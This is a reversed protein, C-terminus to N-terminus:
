GDQQKEEGMATRDKDDANSGTKTQGQEDDKLYEVAARKSGADGAFKNLELLGARLMSERAAYIDREYEESSRNRLRKNERTLAWVMLGVFALVVLWGIAQGM